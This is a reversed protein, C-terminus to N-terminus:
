SPVTRNHYCYQNHSELDIKGVHENRLYLLPIEFGGGSVRKRIENERLSGCTSTGGMPASKTSTTSCICPSSGVGGAWVSTIGAEENAGVVSRDENQVSNALRRASTSAMRAVGATSGCAAGIAKKSAITRSANNLPSASSYGSGVNHM